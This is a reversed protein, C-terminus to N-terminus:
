ESANSQRLGTLIIEWQAASPTIRGADRDSAMALVRPDDARRQEAEDDAILLDVADWGHVDRLFQQAFEAADDLAWIAYYARCGDAPHDCPLGLGHGQAHRLVQAAEARASGDCALEPLLVDYGANVLPAVVHEFATMDAKSGHFLLVLGRKHAVLNSTHARLYHVCKGQALVTHGPKVAGVDLGSFSMSAGSWDLFSFAPCPREPKSTAPPKEVCAPSLVAM